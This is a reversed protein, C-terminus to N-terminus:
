EACKSHLELIRLIVGFGSQGRQLESGSIKRVSRLGNIVSRLGNFQNQSLARVSRAVSRLGNIVSRLGNIWKIFTYPYEM